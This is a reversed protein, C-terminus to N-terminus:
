TLTIGILTALCTSHLLASCLQESVLILLVLVLEARSLGAKSSNTQVHRLPNSLPSCTVLMSMSTNTKSSWWLSDSPHLTDTSKRWERTGSWPTFPTVRCKGSASWRWVAELRGFIWYLCSIILCKWLAFNVRNIQVLIIKISLMLTARGIVIIYQWYKRSYNFSSGLFLGTYITSLHYPFCDKPILFVWVNISNRLVRSRMFIKM